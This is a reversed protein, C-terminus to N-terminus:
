VPRTIPRTTVIDGAITGQAILIPVFTRRTFKWMEDFKSIADFYVGYQDVNTETGAPGFPGDVSAAGRIIERVNTTATARDGALLDIVPNSATQILVDLATSGDAQFAIFERATEFHMGLIPSEWVADDAFVTAMQVYDGRTVADSYCYILQEIANRNELQFALDSVPDGEEIWRTRRVACM